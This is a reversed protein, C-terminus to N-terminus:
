NQKFCVKCIDYGEERYKIDVLHCIKKCSSCKINEQKKEKKMEKKKNEIKYTFVDEEPFNFLQVEDDKVKKQPQKMNNKNNFLFNPIPNFQDRQPSNKRSFKMPPVLPSVKPIMSPQTQQKIKEGLKCKLEPKLEPSRRIEEKKAYKKEQKFVNKTAFDGFDPKEEKEKTQEM